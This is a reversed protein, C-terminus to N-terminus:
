VRRAVIINQECVERDDIYDVVEFLKSWERDVYKRPICTEGWFSWRGDANFSYHCYDGRDFAQKSKEVDQFAGKSGDVWAPRDADQEERLKQCFDFFDRDRTTALLIGGPKLLRRFERLLALHMEEPLHSFVSFLYILDFHADPLPIPPEPEILEFRGNSFTSRCVEIAEKSQDVGVIKDPSVDKLFFRLIRGWGCGFDLITAGSIDKGTHRQYLDRFMMYYRHGAFMAQKGSVSTYTAQFTEDPLGPLQAKIRDVRSRGEVHLWLWYDDGLARPLSLGNISRALYWSLRMRRRLRGILSNIDLKKLAESEM